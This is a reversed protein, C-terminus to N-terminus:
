WNGFNPPFKENWKKFFKRLTFYSYFSEMLYQKKWMVGSLGYANVYRIKSEVIASLFDALNRKWDFNEKIKPSNLIQMYLDDDQDVKKIYELADELTSFDNINIFADTNFDLSIDRAGWYIPITNAVMADVIKETVYGDVCSNELALNFKYHKCFQIKDHVPGGVNNHYRGGFALPKYKKLEDVILFRNPDCTDSNSVVLSCFERQLADKENVIIPNQLQMYGESICYLPLRFHRNNFNIRHFSLAFDCENFNPVNNEGTYYVKLTDQPWQYHRFGFCSYFLIDTKELPTSIINVHYHLVLADYIFNNKPDFWSPFDAFAINLLSM